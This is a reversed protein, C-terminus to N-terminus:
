FALGLTEDSERELALLRVALPLDRSGPTEQKSAADWRCQESNDENFCARLNYLLGM